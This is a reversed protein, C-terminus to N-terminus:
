ARPHKLKKKKLFFSIPPLVRLVRHPRRQLVAAVSFQSLVAGWYWLMFRKPRQRVFFFRKIRQPVLAAVM